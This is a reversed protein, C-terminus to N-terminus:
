RRPRAVASCGAISRPLCGYGAGARAPAGGPLLRRVAGGGYRDAPVDTRAGCVDRVDHRTSRPPVGARVGGVPPQARAARVGARADAYGRTDLGDTSEAGM